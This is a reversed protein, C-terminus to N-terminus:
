DFLKITCDIFVINCHNIFEHKEYIHLWEIDWPWFREWPQRFCDGAAPFLNGTASERPRPEPGPTPQPRGPCGPSLKPPIQGWSHYGTIVDNRPQHLTLLFESTYFAAGERM